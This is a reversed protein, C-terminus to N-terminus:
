LLTSSFPICKYRPHRYSYIRILTDCGMFLLVRRIDDIEKEIM